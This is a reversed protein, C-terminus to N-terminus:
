KRRGGIMKVEVSALLSRATFSEPNAAILERFEKEAETLLGAKAYIAGMVLHFSGWTKRVLSIEQAQQVDLIKFTAFPKDAGPARVGRGDVTAEVMWAYQRGRHLQKDSRWTPRSTPQGEIEVGTALDKVLVTYSTAGALSQWEFVPRTDEVATGVPSLVAFSKEQPNISLLSGAKGVTTEPPPPTSLRGTTLADKLVDRYSPPLTDLGRLEGREDITIQRNGDKLTVSARDPSRMRMEEAQRRLYNNEQDLRASASELEVVRLHMRRAQAWFIFVLVVILVALAFALRYGPTRWFTTVGDREALVPQRDVEAKIRSKLTTIERLESACEVCQEIHVSVSAKAKEDLTEDVYGALQGYDLHEHWHLPVAELDTKIADHTARLKGPSEILRYCQHCEVIHDNVALLQEPSATRSRYAEIENDSLHTTVLREL